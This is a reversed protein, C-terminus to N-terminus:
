KSDLYEGTPTGRKPQVDADISAIHHLTLGVGFLGLWPQYLVKDQPRAMKPTRFLKLKWPGVRRIHRAIVAIACGVSVADNDTERCGLV